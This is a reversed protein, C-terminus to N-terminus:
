TVRGVGLAAALERAFLEIEAYRLALRHDAKGGTATMTSEISYLRNMNGTAGAAAARLITRTALPDPGCALFDADLAVVVDATAFKYYTNVDRGFAM